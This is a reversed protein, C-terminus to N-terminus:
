WWPAFVCLVSLLGYLSFSTLDEHKKTKQAEMSKHNHHHKLRRAALSAAPFFCPASSLLSRDPVDPQGLLALM